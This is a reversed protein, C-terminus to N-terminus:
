ITTEDLQEAYGQWWATPKVGGSTRMADTLATLGAAKARNKLARGGPVSNRPWMKRESANRGPSEGGDKRRRQRHAEADRNGLWAAMWAVPSQSKGRCSQRRSFVGAKVPRV